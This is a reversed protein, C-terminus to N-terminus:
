GLLDWNALFARINPIAAPTLKAAAADAGEQEAPGVIPFIRTSGDGVGGSCNGPSM